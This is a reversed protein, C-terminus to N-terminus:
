RKEEVAALGDVQFALQAALLADFRRMDLGTVHEIRGLRYRVTNEHVGLVKATARVQAGAALYRRLTEVLDGGTSEDSRRLPGICQEAFRLAVDARDGNVVLRLTNLETVPVVETRGGLAVVLGDVDRTEALAGPFDAVDHCVGSVVARRLGTLGSLADMGEGLARHVGRLAPPGPDDPLLVLAVLADPEAFLLPPGGLLEELVVLVGARCAAASRGPAVPLRVLLRPGRLDLGVHRALRHLDDATRSGHLLDAVVDDRGRAASRAARAEGLLQVSIVAAAQEVAPLDASGLPRGMEIVDLYGALAGEVVLAAVLHRRTVGRGRDAPVLVSPRDPGLGELLDRVGGSLEPATTLRLGPPAAWTRLRLDTDLVAVPRGSLESLRAVVGDIEAGELVAGALGRLLHQLQDVEALARDRRAAAGGTGALVASALAAFRALLREDCAPDALSDHEVELVGVVDGDVTLPAVLRSGCGGPPAAGLAAATAVRHATTAPRLLRVSCRTAGLEEQAARVVLALLDGATSPAPGPGSLRSSPGGREDPLGVPSTVDVTIPSAM